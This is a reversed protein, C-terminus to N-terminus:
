DDENTMMFKKQFKKTMIDTHYISEGIMTNIFNHAANEDLSSSFLNGLNIM